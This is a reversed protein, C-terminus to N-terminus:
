VGGGWWCFCGLARQWGLPGATWRGRGAPITTEAPGNSCADKYSHGQGEGAVGEVRKNWASRSVSSSSEM